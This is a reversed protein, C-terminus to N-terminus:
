GLAVSGRLMCCRSPDACAGLELNSVCTAPRTTNQGFPTGVLILRRHRKILTLRQEPVVRCLRASLLRKAILLRDGYVFFAARQRTAKKVFTEAL